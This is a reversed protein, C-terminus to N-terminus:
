GQQRAADLDAPGPKPRLWYSGSAPRKRGLADQTAMAIWAFPALLTFYFVTLVLRALTDGLAQGFRKWLRWAERPGRVLALLAFVTLLVALIKFFFM